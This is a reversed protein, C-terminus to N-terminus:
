YMSWINEWWHPRVLSSCHKAKPERQVGEEGGGRLGCLYKLWYSLMAHGLLLTLIIAGGHNQFARVQSKRRLCLAIFGVRVAHWCNLQLSCQQSQKKAEPELLAWSLMTVSGTKIFFFHSKPSHLIFNIYLHKDKERLIFCLSKTTVLYRHSGRWKETGQCDPYSYVVLEPGHSTFLSLTNNSGPWATFFQHTEESEKGRSGHDRLGHAASPM